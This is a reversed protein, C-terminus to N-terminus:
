TVVMEPPAAGTQEMERCMQVARNPADVALDAWRM